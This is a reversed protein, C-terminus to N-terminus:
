ISYSISSDYASVKREPFQVRGTFTWPPSLEFGTTFMHWPSLIRNRKARRQRPSMARVLPPTARPSPPASCTEPRRFFPISNFRFTFLLLLLLLLLITLPIFLFAFSSSSIYQIFILDYIPILHFCSFSVSARISHEVHVRCHFSIATAVAASNLLLIALCLSVFYDDYKWVDHSQRKKRKYICIVRVAKTRKIKTTRRTTEEKEARRGVAAAFCGLIETSTIQM